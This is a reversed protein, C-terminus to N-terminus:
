NGNSANEQKLVEETKKAVKAVQSQSGKAIAERRRGTFTQFGTAASEDSSDEKPKIYGMLERRVENLAIGQQEALELIGKQLTEIQIKLAEVDKQLAAEYESPKRHFFKQGGPIM